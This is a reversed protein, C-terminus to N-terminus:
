RRSSHMQKKEEGGEEKILLNYLREPKRERVVKIALKISAYVALQAVSLRGRKKLGGTLSWDRKRTQLVWRAAAGQIGQLKELDVKRGSSIVELCYTLRSLLIGEAKVKRQQQTLYATCKWLGRLKEQCSKVTKEVQERWTIDSSVLLGLAKGVKVSKVREGCIVIESDLDERARRGKTALIMYTTKDENVKLRLAKLQECMRTLGRSNLEELERKTKASARSQTDDAYITTLVDKAEENEKTWLKDRKGENGRSREEKWSVLDWAGDRRLQKDLAEERTPKTKGDVLRSLSGKDGM